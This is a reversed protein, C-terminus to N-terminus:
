KSGKDILYHTAGSRVTSKVGYHNMMKRLVGYHWQKVQSKPLDLAETVIQQAQVEAKGRKESYWNEFLERTPDAEQFVATEEIVAQTDEPCMHWTEGNKYAAVAEAWLQDRSLALKERNLPDFITLGVKVPWFRRNVGTEKLMNSVNTTLAFVCVRPFEMIDKGYPPRYRDITTSLFGKIKEGDAKSMSTMESFEIVWGCRNAMVGDKDTIYSHAEHYFEGGLMRLFTTKGGGEGGTLALTNDMQCGPEFARAVAGIM